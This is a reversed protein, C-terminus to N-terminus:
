TVSTSRDSSALLNVVTDVADVFFGNHVRQGTLPDIRTSGILTDPSSDAHVTGNSSAPDTAATLLVLTGSVVNLPPSGTSNSGSTLDSYRDSFGLDTRTWEALIADLASLATDFDTRGGVLLNDGTAQSADLTDPGAGGILVNRGTGGMLVNANADGVLLDNGISGTVNAIAFVRGPAGQSVLSALHLALDVIINGTYQSYDLTNTGSGGDLTGSLSAGSVFAFTDAGTGGTLSPVGSFTFSGTQHPAQALNGRNAGTINWYNVANPGVVATNRNNGIVAQINRFGGAVGGDVNTASGSALNVTMPSTVQSYDLTGGNGNLVGSLSGDHGNSPTL